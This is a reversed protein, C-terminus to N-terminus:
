VNHKIIREAMDAYGAMYSAVEDHGASHGRVYAETYILNFTNDNLNSYLNRLDHFWMDFVDQNWKTYKNQEKKYAKTDVVKEVIDSHAKAESETSFQGIVKGGKYAYFVSYDSQLPYKPEPGVTNTQAKKYVDYKNM